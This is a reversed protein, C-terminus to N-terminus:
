KGYYKSYYKYYGDKSTDAKNLLVGFINAKAKNLQQVTDKVLKKDTEGSQIVLVVGDVQPALLLADSAPMVPSSDIVIVDFKQKLFKLLYTARTSGLLESPNPPVNGAPLLFLNKVETKQVASDVAKKIYTHEDEGSLFEGYLQEFSFGNGSTPKIEDESVTKIRFNGGVMDATVRFAEMMHLSLIKSLNQESVLGMAILISGLRRVSKQQHGLALLAEEDTLIKERILTNALKKSEPRNKWYIDVLEGKLFYLDVENEADAINIICTRKQLETLTILDNLGYDAIRGENIHKGLIDSILNSVGTAKKLNFRATLGPKRLDADIMLVTKGAQAITYALNAVTNTKGESQVSSTVVVSNLEKEMMSFYLNTRLTRFSEAYRSKASFNMLLSDGDQTEKKKKKFNLMM